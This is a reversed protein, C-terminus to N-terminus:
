EISIQVRIRKPQPVRQNGGPESHHGSHGCSGPGEPEDVAHYVVDSVTKERDNGNQFLEVAVGIRAGKLGDTDLFATYSAPIHGVSYATATDDPDYGATADLMIAADEVTRAM